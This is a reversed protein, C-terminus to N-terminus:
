PSRFRSQALLWHAFNEVKIPSAHSGPSNHVIGGELRSFENIKRLEATLKSLADTAVTVKHIRPQQFDASEPDYQEIGEPDSVSPLISKILRIIETQDM